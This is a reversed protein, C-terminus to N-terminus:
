LQFLACREDVSENEGQDGRWEHQSQDDVRNLEPHNVTVLARRAAADKVFRALIAAVALGLALIPFITMM